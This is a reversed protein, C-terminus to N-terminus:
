SKIELQFEQFSHVSAEDDSEFFLESDAAIPWPVVRGSLCL